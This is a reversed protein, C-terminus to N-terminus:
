VNLSRKTHMSALVIVECHTTGQVTEVVCREGFISLLCSKVTTFLNMSFTLVYRHRGM